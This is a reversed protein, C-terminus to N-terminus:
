VVVPQIERNDFSVRLGEASMREAIERVVVKDKSSHSLFVDYRFDDPM